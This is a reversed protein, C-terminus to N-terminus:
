VFIREGKFRRGVFANGNDHQYRDIAPCLYSLGLSLSVYAILYLVVRGTDDVACRRATVSIVLTKEFSLYTPRRPTKRNRWSNSRKQFVEVAVTKVWAAIWFVRFGKEKSSNKGFERSATPFGNTFRVRNRKRVCVYVHVNVYTKRFRKRYFTSKERIRNDARLVCQCRWRRALHPM